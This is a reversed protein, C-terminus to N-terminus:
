GRPRALIPYRLEAGCRELCVAVVLREGAARRAMFEIFGQARWAVEDPMASADEVIVTWGAGEGDAGRWRGFNFLAPALSVLSRLVRAEWRDVTHDSLQPYVGLKVLREASAYGGAVYFDPARGGLADCQARLLRGYSAVPYWQALSIEGELAEVDEPKLHAGLRDPALERRLLLDRLEQVAIRYLSGKVSPVPV